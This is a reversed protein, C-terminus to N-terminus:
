QKANLEVGYIIENLIAMAFAANLLFFVRNVLLNSQVRDELVYKPTDIYTQLSAPSVKFM